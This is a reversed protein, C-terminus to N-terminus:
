AALLFDNKQLLYNFISCMFLNLLVTQTLIVRQSDNQQGAIIDCIKSVEKTKYSCLAKAPVAYDLTKTRLHVPVITKSREFM